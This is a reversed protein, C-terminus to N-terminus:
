QAARLSWVLEWARGLERARGQRWSRLPRRPVARRPGAAPWRGAGTWIRLWARTWRHYSCFYPRRQAGCVDASAAISVNSAVHPRLRGGPLAAAMTALNHELAEADVLLAPTALKSSKM